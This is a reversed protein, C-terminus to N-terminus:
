SGSRILVGCAIRAGSNGSPDTRYDDADVHIVLASGDADFLEAILRAPKGILRFELKGKGDNSITLNPLDGLHSGAPNASGHQRAGPNLHPGASAFAPGECKGVAHLHAGHNKGPTMGSVTVTLKLGQSDQTIVGTGHPVGKAGWLSTGGIVQGALRDTTACASLLMMGALAAPLRIM